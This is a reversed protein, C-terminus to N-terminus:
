KHAETVPQGHKETPPQDSMAIGPRGSDLACNLAAPATLSFRCSLRDAIHFILSTVTGFSPALL